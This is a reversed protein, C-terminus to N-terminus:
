LHSVSEETHPPSKEECIEKKELSHKSNARRKASADLEEKTKDKKPASRVREASSRESSLEQDRGASARSPSASRSRPRPKRRSGLANRPEQEFDFGEPDSRSRGGRRRLYRGYSRRHPRRQVRTDEYEDEEEFQFQPRRDETPLSRRTMGRSRRYYRHLFPRRPQLWRQPPPQPQPSDPVLVVDHFDDSDQVGLRPNPMPRRQSRRPFWRGRFRGSDAAYPTSPPGEYLSRMFKQPNRRRIATQHVFIDERTDNRNILGYGDKVNLWQVAGLVREALVPKKTTVQMSGIDVTPAKRSQGTFSAGALISTSAHHKPKEDNMTGSAPPDPVQLLRKWERSGPVNGIIVDDLPDELCKVIATGAFYPSAIDVEAERVKVSRGDVLEPVLSRRLVLTNSGTDRLVSVTQGFLAGELVPMDYHATSREQVVNPFKNGEGQKEPEHELAQRSNNRADQRAICCSSVNQGGDKWRCSKLDHGKRRCHVCFLEKKREDTVQLLGKEYMVPRKCREEAEARMRSAEREAASEERAYKETEAARAQEGEVWARLEADRLGLKEGLGILEKTRM